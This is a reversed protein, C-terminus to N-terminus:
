LMKIVPKSTTLCYSINIQTRSILAKFSCLGFKFICGHKCIYIYLNNYISINIEKISGNLFYAIGPNVTKIVKGVEEVPNVVGSSTECHVMAVLTFSKDGKLASEIKSPTVYDDEPFSLIEYPLGM